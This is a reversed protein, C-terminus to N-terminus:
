LLIAIFKREVEALIRTFKEAVVDRCRPLLIFLQAYNFDLQNVLLRIIPDVDPIQMLQELLLFDVFYKQVRARNASM